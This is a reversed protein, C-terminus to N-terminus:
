MRGVDVRAWRVALGLLFRQRHGLSRRARGPPPHPQQHAHREANPEDQAHPERVGALLPDVRSGAVCGIPLGRPIGPTTIEDSLRDLLRALRRHAQMIPGVHRARAPGQEALAPDGGHCNGPRHVRHHEPHGRGSVTFRDTLDRDYREAWVHHGNTADILQATIRVTRGGRRVSGELVDRGAVVTPAAKPGEPGPPKVDYVRLPAMNKIEREGQDVFTVALRNGVAGQV